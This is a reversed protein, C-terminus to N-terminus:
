TRTWRSRGPSRSASSSAGSLREPYEFLKDELGVRELLARSKADAEERAPGLVMRQAISVNRGATMHPFLNFQQFVM